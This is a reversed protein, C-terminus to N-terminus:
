QLPGEPRAKALLAGAAAEDVIWHVRASPRVLASPVRMPDVPDSLAAEVVGAKRAGTVTVVIRRAAALVAPTVTVRAVFPEESVEEVAVPAAAAPSRLAAAGPMLSAIHGNTGVGLLVLDFVPTPSGLASVLTEGYGAAVKAPDGLETPPPHIRAAVIGRPVLLSDRALKVNSLADDASVCREDGWFWEIREWPLDTRGALAVMVGRGGRGGCLAVSPGRERPVDRVFTAALEAAAEFAEADTAYVDLKM